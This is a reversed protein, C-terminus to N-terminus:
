PSFYHPISPSPPPTPPSFPSLFLQHQPFRPSSDPDPPRKDRRFREFLGRNEILHLSRAGGEGARAGTPCEPEPVDNGPDNRWPSASVPSRPPWSSGAASHSAPFRGRAPSSRRARRSM